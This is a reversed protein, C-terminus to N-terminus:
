PHALLSISVFVDTMGRVPRKGKDTVPDYSSSSAIREITRDPAPLPPQPDTTEQARSAARLDGSGSRMTRRLSRKESSSSPKLIPGAPIERDSRSTEPSPKRRKQMGDIEDDGGDEMGSSVEKDPTPWRQRDLANDTFKRVPTQPHPLLHEPKVELQPTGSSPAMTGGGAKGVHSEPEQEAITGLPTRPPSVTNNDTEIPGGFLSQPATAERATPITTEDLSWPRQPHNHKGHISPSRRLSCFPNSPTTPDSAPRNAPSPTNGYNNDKLRVEASKAADRLGDSLGFESYSPDAAPADLERTTPRETFPDLVTSISRREGFGRNDPTPWTGAADESDEITTIPAESVQAGQDITEDEADVKGSQSAAKTAPRRFSGRELGPFINALKGQKLPTEQHMDNPGESITRETEQVPESTPMPVPEAERPQSRRKKKDKKKSPVTWTGDAPPQESEKAVAWPIASEDFEGIADSGPEIAIQRSESLPEPTQEPLNEARDKGWDISPWAEEDQQSGQRELTQLDTVPAHETPNIALEKAEVQEPQEPQEPEVLQSVRKAKKKKKSSSRSLPADDMTQEIASPPQDEETQPAAESEMSVEPEAQQAPEIAGQLAKQKSKRKEKKSLKRPLPAVDGLEKPRDEFLDEAVELDDNKELEQAKQKEQANKSVSEDQLDNEPLERAGSEGTPEMPMDVDMAESELPVEFPDLSVSPEGQQTQEREWAQEEPAIGVDEAIPATPEHARASGGEAPANDQTEVPSPIEEQQAKAKQKEKKAKKGKKKPSTAWDDEADEHKEETLQEPVNESSQIDTTPKEASEAVNITPESTASPAEIQPHDEMLAEQALAKKKNKKAKKKSTPMWPDEPQDQIERSAGDAGPESRSQEEVIEMLSKGADGAATPQERIHADGPAHSDGIELNGVHDNTSEVPAISEPQPEPADITSSEQEEPIAENGDADVPLKDEQSESPPPITPNDLASSVTTDAEVAPQEETQAQDATDQALSRRKKKEKKSMKRSLGPSEVNEEISATVNQSSVAHEDPSEIGATPEPTPEDGEEYREKVDEESAIAPEKPAEIDMPGAVPEDDKHGAELAPEETPKVPEESAEVGLAGVVPEENMQGSELAREEPATVPEQPMDSQQQEASPTPEALQNKGLQKEKQKQKKDKKKKSSTTAALEEAEPVPPVEPNPSDAEFPIETGAAPTAPSDNEKVVDGLAEETAPQEATEETPASPINDSEPLGDTQGHKSEVEEVGKTPVLGTEKENTTESVDAFIKEDATEGEDAPAEPENPTTPPGEKNEIDPGSIDPETGSPVLSQDAVTHEPEPQSPFVASAEQQQEVQLSVMEDTWIRDKEKEGSTQTDHSQNAKGDDEAPPVITAPSPESPEAETPLTPIVDQSADDAPASEVPTSPDKPEEPSAGPASSAADQGDNELDLLKSQRKKDKKAKRKEKASMFPKGDEEEKEPQPAPEEPEKVDTTEPDAARDPEPQADSVPESAIAPEETLELTKRKKKKKKDKKSKSTGADQETDDPQPSQPEPASPEESTVAEADKIEAEPVTETVDTKEPESVPVEADAMEGAPPQTQLESTAAADHTEPVEEATPDLSINAAQDEAPASEAMENSEGQEHAAASPDEKPSDVSQQAEKELEASEVAEPSATHPESTHEPKAEDAQPTVTTEATENPDAPQGVPEEIDFSVSKRKKKDKKAKRKSAASQFEETPEPAPPEAPTTEAMAEETPVEESKETENGVAAEYAPDVAEAEGSPVIQETAEDEPTLSQRKKKKKKDKKSKKSTTPEADETQAKDQEQATDATADEKTLEQSDEVGIGDGPSQEETTGVPTATEDTQPEPEATVEKKEDTATAEAATGTDDRPEQQALDADTATSDVADELVGTATDKSEEKAPAEEAGQEEGTPAVAATVDDAPEGRSTEEATATIDKDVGAASNDTPENDKPAEEAHEAPITASDDGSTAKESGQVAASEGAVAVDGDPTAENQASEGAPQPVSTEEVLASQRKKKKDKKAKKKQAPTLPTEIEPPAQSEPTEVALHKPAESEVPVDKAEMDAPLEEATSPQESVGPTDAESEPQKGLSTPEVEVDAPLGEATSPQEPVGLTDVESEPQKDLSTPEVETGAAAPEAGETAPTEEDNAEPPPQSEDVAFAEDGAQTPQSEPADVFESQESKLEPEPEAQAESLSLSKRSKKGKKGKKKPQEEWDEVASVEQAQEVRGPLTDTTTSDPQGDIVPEQAPDDQKQPDEANEEAENQQLEPEGSEPGAEATETPEIQGELTEGSTPPEKTETAESEVPAEATNKRKNKKKNKKSAKRSIGPDPEQDAAPTGQDQAPPEPAVDTPASDEAPAPAEQTMEQQFEPQSQETDPVVTAQEAPVETTEKETVEPTIQQGSEVPLERTDPLEPADQWEVPANPQDPEQAHAQTENKDHEPEAGSEPHEVDLEKTEEPTAAHDQETSQIPEESAGVRDEIPETPTDRTTTISEEREKSADEGPIAITTGSTEPEETPQSSEHETVAGTAPQEAEPQEPQEELDLGKSKRKKKKDRKAKKSSAEPAPPEEADAAPAAELHAEEPQAKELQSAEPELERSDEFGGPVNQTEATDPAPVQETAPEDPKADDEPAPSAPTSEPETLDMSQAKKKKNKKKKKSSSVSAPEDVPTQPTEDSPKDARETPGQIDEPVEKDASPLEEPDPKEELEASPEGKPEQAHGLQVTDAPEPEKDDKSEAAVAVAADVVGAFGAPGTQQGPSSQTFTEPLERSQPAVELDQPINQETAPPEIERTIMDPGVAEDKSETYGREESVERSSVKETGKVAASVAADVIGAFGIGKAIDAAGTSEERTQAPTTEAVSIPPQQQEQPTPPRSDPLPPLSDLYRELADESVSEEPVGVASGEASPLAGFTPSPPLEAYVGPDQLLESPSHFEYKPKEKKVSQDAQGFSQATPTAQQSGLVDHEADAYDDRETSIRLGPSRRGDHVHHSLDVAEWRRVEQDDASGKLDEMSPSRSSPKSSPLSPLPEDPQPEVKGGHREVLWLPRFERSNKFETSAPRRHRSQSPSEPQPAAPSSVSSPRNAGPSIPPRRFYLPVATPSDNMTLMSSRRSRQGQALEDLAFEPSAPRSQQRPAQGATPSASRNRFHEGMMGLGIGAAGAAMASAHGSAGSEHDDLM